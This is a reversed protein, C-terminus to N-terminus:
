YGDIDTLRKFLTCGYIDRPWIGVDKWIFDLRLDRLRKILLTYKNHINTIFTYSSSLSELGRKYLSEPTRMAPFVKVTRDM